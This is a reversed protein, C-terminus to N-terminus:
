TTSRNTGRRGLGKALSNIAASVKPDEKIPEPTAKPPEVQAPEVVKAKAEDAALMAKLEADEDLSKQIEPTVLTYGASQFARAYAAPGVVIGDVDSDYRTWPVGPSTGIGFQIPSGTRNWYKAMIRM